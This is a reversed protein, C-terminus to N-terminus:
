EELKVRQFYLAGVVVPQPKGCEAAADAAFVLWTETSSNGVQQEAASAAEGAPLNTYLFPCSTGALM